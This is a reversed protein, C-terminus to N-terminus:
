ENTGILSPKDFPCFAVFVAGELRLQVRAEKCAVFMAYAM